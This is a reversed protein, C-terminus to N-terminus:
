HADSFTLLHIGGQSQTIGLNLLQVTQSNELSGKIFRTIGPKDCYGVM